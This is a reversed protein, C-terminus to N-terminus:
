IRYGSDYFQDLIQNSLSEQGAVRKVFHKTLIDVSHGLRAAAEAIPIVQVLHSANTRRLGYPSLPYQRGVLHSARRLARGWNSQTPRSGSQSLFLPGHTIERRKMWDVLIEVLIPPIPVTRLSRETKPGAIAEQDISWKSNDTASWARTIRIAGWGSDPLTLDEVRLVVAEGPRLEAFGCVASLARYLHSSPQHSPIADLIARLQAVSPVAEDRTDLSAKRDSKATAGSERRPWPVADILGKQEATSLATKAVTILRSQTSPAYLTVGDPRLRMRRDTEYLTKRDLETLLPSNKSVWAQLGRPLPDDTWAWDPTDGGVVHSFRPTMWSALIQRWEYVPLRAASRTCNFVFSTLAEVYSRRTSPSLRRWQDQIFSRCYEALNLESSPSMSTPLGTRSDWSPENFMAVKMKAHFAEAGNAGRKTSFSRWYGHGNLRWRVVYPM